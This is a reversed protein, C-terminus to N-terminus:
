EGIGWEGITDEGIALASPPVYEAVTVECAGGSGSGSLTVGAIPVENSGGSGSGSHGYANFLGIAEGAQLLFDRFACNLDAAALVQAYRQLGRRQTQYEPMWPQSLEVWMGPRLLQTASRFATVRIEPTAFPFRRLITDAAQESLIYAQELAQTYVIGIAQVASFVRTEVAFFREGFTAVSSSVSALFDPSPVRSPVGGDTHVWWVEVEQAVVGDIAGVPLGFEDVPSAFLRNYKYQVINVIDNGDAWGTAPLTNTEDLRTLGTRVAPLDRHLPSINLDRDFAPAWGSAKYGEAELFSRLDDIPQTVRLEVQETLLALQAPDYRIGTSIAVGPDFLVPDFPASPAKPSFEGDYSAQLFEGFTGEWHFPFDDSTPGIYQIVFEVTANNAPVSAGASAGTFSALSILHASTVEQGNFDGTVTYTFLSPVTPTTVTSVELYRPKVKTWTPGGVPRWWIVAYPFATNKWNAPHPELRGKGADIQAQQLIVLNTIPNAPNGPVSFYNRLDLYANTFVVSGTVVDFFQEYIVTATLPSHEMNPLYGGMAIPGVGERLIGRPLIATTEGRQFAKLKRELERSDRITLRYASFTVDFVVSDCPGDCITIWGQIPDIFRRLRMRRGKMASVYNPAGTSTRATMVGSDQDGPITPPDITRVVISAISARGELFSVTQEGYAANGEEDPDNLITIDATDLPDTTAHWAVTTRDPEYVDLQLVCPKSPEPEPGPPGFPNSGPPPFATVGLTYADRFGGADNAGFVKGLAWGVNGGIGYPLTELIDILWYNTGRWGGMGARIRVKDPDTIDYREVRLRVPILWDNIACPSPWAWSSILPVSIQNVAYDGPDGPAPGAVKNISVQLESGATRGADPCSQFATGLVGARINASVGLSAGASGSAFAAVGAMAGEAAWYLTAKGFYLSGLSGYRVLATVDYGVGTPLSPPSQVQLSSSGGVLAALGTYEHPQGGPLWEPATTDWHRSYLKAGGSTVTTFDFDVFASGTGPVAILKFGFHIWVVADDWVIRATWDIGEPYLSTDSLDRSYTTASGLGSALLIWSPNAANQAISISSVTRGARATWEFDVDAGAIGVIEGFKPKIFQSNAVTSPLIPPSLTDLLWDVERQVLLEGNVTWFTTVTHHILGDLVIKANLAVADNDNTGADIAYLRSTILATGVITAGGTATAGTGSGQSYLFTVPPAGLFDTIDHTAATTQNSGVDPYTSVSTILKLGVAVSSTTPSSMSSEYMAVLCPVGADIQARLVAANAVRDGYAGAYVIANYGSLTATAFDASAIYDVNHGRQEIAFRIRAPQDADAPPNTPVVLAVSRNFPAWDPKAYRGNFYSLLEGVELDTLLGDSIVIEAYEFNTGLDELSFGDLDGSGFDGAWHYAGNARAESSAGNARLHLVYPEAEFIRRDNPAQVASGCDARFRASHTAVTDWGWTFGDGSSPPSFINRDAGFAFNISTGVIFVDCPQSVGAGFVVDAGGMGSRMIFVSQGNIANHNLAIGDTMAALLDDGGAGDAVQTAFTGSVPAVYWHAVAPIDTPDNIPM